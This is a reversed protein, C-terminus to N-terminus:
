GQGAEDDQRGRPKRQAELRPVTFFGDRWSPANVSPPVHMGDTGPEDARPPAVDQAAISFPPVGATDASHLVDMHDLINSLDAAM